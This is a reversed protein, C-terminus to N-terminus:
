ARSRIGRASMEGCERQSVVEYEDLDLVCWNWWRKCCTSIRRRFDRRIVRALLCTGLVSTGQYCPFCAYRQIGLTRVLTTKRDTRHQVDEIIYPQGSVAVAGCVAEGLALHECDKAMQGSVGRYWELRM